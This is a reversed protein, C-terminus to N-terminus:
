YGSDYEGIDDGISCGELLKSQPEYQYKTNLGTYQM